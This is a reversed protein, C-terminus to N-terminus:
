KNEMLRTEVENLKKRTKILVKKQIEFEERTVVDLERVVEQVASRINQKIDNSISEPLATKAAAFIKEIVDNPNPLDPM